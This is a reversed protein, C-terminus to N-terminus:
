AVNSTTRKPGIKESGQEPEGAAAANDNNDDNYNDTTDKSTKTNDSVLKLGAIEALREIDNEVSEPDDGSEFHGMRIKQESRDVFMGLHKAVSEVSRNANTYDGNDLAHQYIHNFRDLVKDANWAMHKIAENRLNTIRQQIKPNHLMAYSRRTTDAKNKGPKYNASIYAKVADGTGIYEMCFKEQRPSMGTIFKPKKFKPVEAPNELLAPKGTGNNTDTYEKKRRVAFLRDTRRRDYEQRMELLDRGATTHKRMSATNKILEALDKDSMSGYLIHKNNDKTTYLSTDKKKTM